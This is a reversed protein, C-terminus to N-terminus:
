KTLFKAVYEFFHMVDGAHFDIQTLKHEAQKQTTADASNLYDVVCGLPIFNTGWEGGEVNFIFERNLNKETILRDFYTM